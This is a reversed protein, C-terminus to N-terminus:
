CRRWVQAGAGGLRGPRAEALVFRGRAAIPISVWRRRARRDAAMPRRMQAPAERGVPAGAQRASRKISMCVLARGFPGPRSSKTRSPARLVRGRARGAGPLTKHQEGVIQQNTHKTPAVAAARTVQQRQLCCFLPAPRAPRGRLPSLVPVARSRDRAGAAARARRCRRV